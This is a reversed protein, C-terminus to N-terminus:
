ELLTAMGRSHQVAGCVMNFMQYYNRSMLFCIPQQVLHNCTTWSTLISDSLASDNQVSQAKSISGQCQASQSICWHLVCWRESLGSFCLKSIVDLKVLGADILNLTKLGSWFDGIRGGVLITRTDMTDLIWSASFRLRPFFLKLIHAAQSKRCERSYFVGFWFSSPFGSFDQM